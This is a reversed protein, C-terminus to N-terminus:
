VAVRVGVPPRMVSPAAANPVFGRGTSVAMRSAVAASKLNLVGALSVLSNVSITGRM